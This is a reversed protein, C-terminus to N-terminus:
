ILIVKKRFKRAKEKTPTTKAILNTGKIEDYDTEFMQCLFDYIEYLMEESCKGVILVSGTRFIMFSIKSIVTDSKSKTDVPPQVGNQKKLSADHYFECQIGPYSCPDFNSNIKYKYKLLKYMKERNIYYGCSFNSNIMVTESKEDLFKLPVNATLVVLPTLIDVLLALVKNLIFADQIGPIELKGTNFVKVHIEKYVDNHLLRLIVVFCNYFASKRKCRYSTIDKKCIGISVKRIDKFKSRGDTAHVQSIIYDDVYDYKTKEQLIASVEEPTLSNFKM